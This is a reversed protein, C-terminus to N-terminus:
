LVPRNQEIQWEYIAVVEIVRVKDSSKLERGIQREVERQISPNDGAAELLVPAKVLRVNTVKVFLNETSRPANGEVPAVDTPKLDGYQGGVGYLTMERRGHHLISRTGEDLAIPKDRHITGFTPTFFEDPFVSKRSLGELQANTHENIELYEHFGFFPGRKGDYLVYIHPVKFDRDGKDDIYQIADFRILGRRVLVARNTRPLLEWFGRVALRQVQLREEEEDQRGIFSQDGEVAKTYDWERSEKDLYAFYRAVTVVLGRPDFSVVAYEKWRPNKDFDPYEDSFPYSEDNLDRILVRGRPEDGLARMLKNKALVTSRVSATKSRRRAILSIGFFAFLIHDNKPQFLMDELEGAGWLYFEMVGRMRLEERFRDHAAKSFHVPAALIYGYPPAETKVGDSIITAIKKPGVEKERKCQIMWLNGEMPHATEEADSEDELASPLTRLEEYARVDFGDDAGGRGTSEISKWIRFDYTLQRVLDEFRHPDLDEFHIPGVTRTVHPKAMVCQGGLNTTFRRMGRPVNYAKVSAAVAEAINDRLTELPIVVAM